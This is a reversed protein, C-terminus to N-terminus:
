GEINPTSSVPGGAIKGVVETEQLLGAVFSAFDEKSIVENKM